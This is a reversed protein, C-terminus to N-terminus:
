LAYGQVLVRAYRTQGTIRRWVLLAFRARSAPGVEINTAHLPPQSIPFGRPIARAIVTLDYRQALEEVLRVDTGSEVVFCLSPRAALWQHMTPYEIHCPATWGPLSSSRTTSPSPRRASRMGLIDKLM